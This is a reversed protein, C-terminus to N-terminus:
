AYLHSDDNRDISNTPIVFNTNWHATLQCVFETYENSFLFRNQWYKHNSKAIKQAIPSDDPLVLQKQGLIEPVATETKEASEDDSDPPVEEMKRKYVVIYANATKVYGKTSWGVAQEVGGFCENPIDNKDFDRVITDNFEYWKEPAAKDFREQEKIYSYYHGSDATGSHVVIGVLEYNYYDSHYKM